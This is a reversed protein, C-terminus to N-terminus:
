PEPYWGGNEEKRIFPHSYWYYRGSEHSMATCNFRSRGIPISKKPTIMLVNNDESDKELIEVNMEGQNSAYCQVRKNISEDKLSLELQPTTIPIPLVTDLIENNEDDFVTVSHIPMPFSSVKIAFDNVDGYNGGFPFRPLAQLNAGRGIPGSQQGFAIIHNDALLKKLANSYEGYPYAFLRHAEGKQEGMKRKIVNESFRIESLVNESWEEESRESGFGAFNLNKRILHPHSFSHNSISAGYEAMELLQEWSVFQSLGQEVPKVNIFVTFPYGYEKLLPFATDYISSYGDDFTIAVTKDPLTLRNELAHVLEYLPVVKYGNERLYYLHQSFLQPSIRTAKPASHSVHHYQLVVAAESQQPLLLHLCPFLLSSIVLLYKRM